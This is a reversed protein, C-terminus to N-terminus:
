KKAGKASTKKQNSKKFPNNKTQNESKEASKKQVSKENAKKRSIRKTKSKEAFNQAIKYAETKTLQVDRAIEGDRMYLVRSAFKLLDPNHTVLLITNGERHIKTLEHMIIESNESDLNGTPEDALIIAPQNILARAIAARQMQGGSLQNPMYYDRNELGVKKLIESAKELNKFSEGRSYQLPLVVNDIVNLSNILNFNQFIFGIKRARVNARRNASFKAVNRGNLFYEGDSARDILGLINLLTTKGCGSPGMVAVFEGHQIELNINKLAKTEADLVGFKKSIKRLSITPFQPMKARAFFDAFDKKQNADDFFDGARSIKAAMEGGGDFM